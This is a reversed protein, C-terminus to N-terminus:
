NKRTPWKKEEDGHFDVRSECLNSKTKEASTITGESDQFVNIGATYMNWFQYYQFSPFNSWLPLKILNYPWRNALRTILAQIINTDQQLSTYLM